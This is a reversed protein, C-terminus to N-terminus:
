SRLLQPDIPLRRIRKGTAAFLANTLAPMAPALTPEGLGTPRNDSIRFHVEVPPAERMRLLGFTNFNTDVVAGNRITLRQHLASGLGDLIAGQAQNYAGAPNIIQRGIDVAAWVKHIRPVGRENVSAKIVEAVYGFHSYCFALGMGTRPPLQRKGWGAKEAVLQLVGRARGTDFPPVHLGPMRSPPEPIVRPPGYLELRLELPDHGGAYAIEDIFSEFAFALGNYNPDRWHGTPAGLEIMTQGFELNPVFGAPFMGPPLDACLAVEGGHSFTVFHDTFGVLKGQADLAGRFHNYGAPRYFDHQLDQRRNWLLKVPKGVRQSIAAAEIVYDNDGRRGFGGGVRTMHVTVKGPDLQLTRAVLMLAATPAQSPAWIELRGDPKAWATCNMPELTAHALFPYAYSAEVIQAASGFAQKVDGDHRLIQRPAEDVLAAAQRDFIDTAQQSVNRPEWQVKLLELARNAQHWREAVIAVGDVLGADMTEAPNGHIIFADRVGPQAKIVDLNASLARSGFVPAKEYVAYLMGPVSQDIGFLPEGALVRPGDVQPTFHGIIRYDKPDKVPVTLLDPVPLRAAKSALEGYTARRGSARHHVVGQDTECESAPVHWLRMAATLMMQRGAAGARRMPDYQLPTNLSGYSFQTGYLAPNVPATEVHVNAWPVDLEDAIIMPLTTKMGQGMDPSRAMITVLGDRAILIYAGLRAASAQEAQRAFDADAICPLSVTLMLGGGAALSASLFARRSPNLPAGASSEPLVCSTRAM